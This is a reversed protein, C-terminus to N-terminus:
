AWARASAASSAGHREWIARDKGMPWSPAPVSSGDHDHCYSGGTRKVVQREWMKTPAKYEKEM